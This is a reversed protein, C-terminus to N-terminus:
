VNTCFIITPLMDGNKDNGRTQKTQRPRSATRPESKFADSLHQLRLMRREHLRVVLDLEGGIAQIYHRSRQAMHSSDNL